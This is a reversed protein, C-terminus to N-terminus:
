RRGAGNPTKPSRPRAGALGAGEDKADKFVLRVGEIATSTAVTKRIAHGRARADALHPNSQLLSSKKM